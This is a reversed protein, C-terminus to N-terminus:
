MKVIYGVTAKQSQPSNIVVADDKCTPCAGPLGNYWIIPAINEINENELTLSIAGNIFLMDAIAEPNLM